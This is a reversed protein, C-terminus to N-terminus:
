DNIVEIEQQDLWTEFDEVKMCDELKVEGVRTRILGTLHAGSQLAQGIDRALARIYTGKSCVVRIKIEPLNCELLEIEDIVLIKPKLEVEDGKRALDYARKGDVKCASFVPPVQEITGVFKKLTEKVMEKTIHDTPYTADIEKELDFSPTTAGLQLTAIYEKTHYQFEEIRKTAKGTCIIMVGTALPDLTGAHGVKIKKVGLKRSIHYRIKNVVAFSTWRLPKDFYLVEGEKFNM